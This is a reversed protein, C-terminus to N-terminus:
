LTAPVPRGPFLTSYQRRGVGEMEKQSMVRDAVPMLETVERRLHVKLVSSLDEYLGALEQGSEADATQMWRLRVPEIGELRQTVQKHQELMLGVHLACAPARESLQPYM